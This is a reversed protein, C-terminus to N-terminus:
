GSQEDPADPDFTVMLRAIRGEGPTLIMRGAVREPERRWSYMAVIVGGEELTDVIDIEDDPPRIAYADAIAKRGVFPGVPVGEFVMEADDTFDELMASFDGTRVGENFRECHTRLIDAVTSM